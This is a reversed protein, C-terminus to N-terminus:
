KNTWFFDLSVCALSNHSRSLTSSVSMLKRPGIGNMSMILPAEFPEADFPKATDLDCRISQDFMVNDTTVSDTQRDSHRAKLRVWLYTSKRERMKRRHDDPNCPGM